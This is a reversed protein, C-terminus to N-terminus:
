VDLVGAGEAAEAVANFSGEAIGTVVNFSDGLPDPPPAAYAFQDEDQSASVTAETEGFCVAGFGVLLVVFMIKMDKSM